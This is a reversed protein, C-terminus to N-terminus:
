HHWTMMNSNSKRVQDLDHNLNLNFDFIFNEFTPVLIHLTHFIIKPYKDYLFWM